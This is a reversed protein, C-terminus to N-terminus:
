NTTYKINYLQNGFSFGRESLFTTIPASKALMLAFFFPIFKNQITDQFIVELFKNLPPRDGM